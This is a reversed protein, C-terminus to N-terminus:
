AVNNMCTHGPVSRRKTAHSLPLKFLCYIVILRCFIVSGLPHWWEIGFYEGIMEKKRVPGVVLTSVDKPVVQKNACEYRFEISCCQICTVSSHMIFHPQIEPMGHVISGSLCFFFLQKTTRWQKGRIKSFQFFSKVTCVVGLKWFEM